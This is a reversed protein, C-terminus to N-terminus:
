FVRGEKVCVGSFYYFFLPRLWMSLIKPRSPPVTSNHKLNVATSEQVILDPDLKGLSIM